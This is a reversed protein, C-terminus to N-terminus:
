PLFFWMSQVASVVDKKSPLTHWMTAVLNWPGAWTHVNICDQYGRNDMSVCTQYIQWMHYVITTKDVKGAIQFLKFSWNHWHALCPLPCTTVSPSNSVSPRHVFCTCVAILSLKTWFLAGGDEEKFHDNNDNNDNNDNEHNEVIWQMHCKTM